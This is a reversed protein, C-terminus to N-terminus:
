LKQPEFRNGYKELFIVDSLRKRDKRKGSLKRASYGFGVVISPDMEKPIDFDKRLSEERMGTFLCSAVGFNWAALQMDQVARGADILHFGYGPDTLVIVAFNSREVWAGSTSDKALRKLGAREQVLIFRWHQSNMGSGTLRAAELIKLKVDAPASKSGFERVDLKSVVCEYADMTVNVRQDEIVLFISKDSKLHRIKSSISYGINFKEAGRRHGMASM